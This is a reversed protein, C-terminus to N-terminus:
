AAREDDAVRRSLHPPNAAVAMPELGVRGADHSTRLAPIAVLLDFGADQSAEIEVLLERQWACQAGARLRIPLHFLFGLMFTGNSSRLACYRAILVSTSAAIASTSSDCCKM